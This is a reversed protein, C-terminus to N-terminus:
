RSDKHSPSSGLEQSGPAEGLVASGPQARSSVSAPEQEPGAGDWPDTGSGEEGNLPPPELGGEAEEAKQEEAPHAPLAAEDAEGPVSPEAAEAQLSVASPGQQPDAKGMPVSELGQELGPQGAPVPGKEADLSPDATPPLHEEQTKEEETVGSSWTEQEEEPARPRAPHPAAQGEQEAELSGRTVEGPDAPPATSQAPSHQLPEKHETKAGPSGEQRGAGTGPEENDSGHEPKEQQRNLLQLTVTQFLSYLSCLHYGLYLGDCIETDGGGVM